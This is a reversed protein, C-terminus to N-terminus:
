GIRIATQYADLMRHAMEAPRFRRSNEVACASFRRRLDTDTLLLDIRATFDRADNECLFSDEGHRVMEPSGGANVAVCPLGAALAEGLVLGQTETTSPFVFIDGACYVRGVKERPVMGVVIARDSLGRDALEKRLGDEYPGGGVFVQCLGAHKKSLEEFSDLLLALNKERALRGVCLLVTADSSVGWQKRVAERTAEDRAIDLANGTPVVSIERRVGYGLLIDKNAQSPTIVLDCSDYYRRLMWIVAARSWSVPALPFYHTYEAYQTHNTSVVPIGLRRGLRLGAWGLMFPTQTHIIDLKLDRALSLLGPKFPFALPYDRATPPRISPFRFVNPDTDCHGHYGPAFVFTEHGLEGLADRLTRISTTVGNLIPEFSESFIAIRM